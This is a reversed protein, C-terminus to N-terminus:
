SSVMVSFCSFINKFYRLLSPLSISVDLDKQVIKPRKKPRRPPREGLIAYYDEEIERRSLAVTLKRRERKEPSAAAGDGRLRPSKNETRPPFFGSRKGEIKLGKGGGGGNPAKCAARRTRLNWPRTVKVSEEKAAGEGELSVKVKDVATQFDLMLKARMAEFGDGRDSDVRSLKNLGPPSYRRGVAAPSGNGGSEPDVKVCRLFKQNGWKLCGMSFNHLPPKSKEAGTAM